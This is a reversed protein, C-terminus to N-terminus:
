ARSVALTSRISKLERKPICQRLSRKFDQQTSQHLSDEKLTVIYVTQLPCRFAKYGYLDHIEEISNFSCRKRKKNEDM